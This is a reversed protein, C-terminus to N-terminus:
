TLTPSLTSKVLQAPSSNLSPLLVSAMRRMRSSSTSATRSYCFISARLTLRPRVLEILWRSASHSRLLDCEILFCTFCHPSADAFEGAGDLHRKTRLAAVDDELL